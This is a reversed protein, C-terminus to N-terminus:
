ARPPSRKAPRRQRAELQEIRRRLGAIEGRLFAIEAGLAAGDGSADPAATTRSAADPGTRGTPDHGAATRTAARAWSEALRTWGEQVERDLGLAATESQMITMWDRIAAGPDFPGPKDSM